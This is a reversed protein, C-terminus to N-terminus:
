ELEKNKAELFNRQEMIALMKNIQIDKRELQNAISKVHEKLLPYESLIRYLKDYESQTFEQTVINDSSHGLTDSCDEKLISLMKESVEYSGNEITYYSTLYRRVTRDTVGLIDAVEKTSYM